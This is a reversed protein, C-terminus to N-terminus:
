GWLNVINVPEAAVSGNAADPSETICQRALGDLGEVLTSLLALYLAQMPEPRAAAMTTLLVEAFPLLHRELFDGQALRYRGAQENVAELHQLWCMFELQCVLHDPLENADEDTRLGFHRYWGSHRLLFEPRSEGGLLEEYDAANLAVQPRGKRGVQFLRIFAAEFEGFDAPVEPLQLQLGLGADGAQSLAANFGGDCLHKHLAPDPHSFALALLQFWQSRAAARTNDSAMMM